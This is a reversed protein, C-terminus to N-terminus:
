RNELARYGLAEAIHLEAVTSSADMDAITRAVRLLRTVARGSLHMRRAADELLVRAGPELSVRLGCVPRSRAFARAEDVRSRVDLTCSASRAHDILIGPDVRDVRLTIDMRDLLPGGIRSAYRSLAAPPCSCHRAPDGSYGCPCPNMAAVLTVRAPYRIAGLARVLTVVGEELPQRLAQLAGPGFEPFEDLFLVGNHALSLEGPRPPTGGGVLGAVTCTHHPARFPRKGALVDHPDLGAVSHILGSQLREAEDLEPLLGCLARALMTKGSGPPGVFLVNHGGTAAIELCRKAAEHGAIDGLDPEPPRAKASRARPTTHMAPLGTRIASIGTLGRYRLRPVIDVVDAASSPGLLDRDERSATIAHALMGPVARVAGDLGLEGVATVGGLCAPPIQGTASLVALAIPLDFGTGHKRLPAPALNVIVRANPFQFGAARVAARVRDRAEQVATDALGVIGFVPLGSSVDAQVEVPIAEVGLITASAVTAQM